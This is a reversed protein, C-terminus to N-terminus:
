QRQQESGSPALAQGTLAACWTGHDGGACGGLVGCCLSPECVCAVCQIEQWEMHM